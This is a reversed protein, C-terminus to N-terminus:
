QPVVDRQFYGVFADRVQRIYDEVDSPALTNLDIGDHVIPVDLGPRRPMQYEDM